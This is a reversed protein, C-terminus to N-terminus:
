GPVPKLLLRLPVHRHQLTSPKPEPTPASSSHSPCTHPPTWGGRWSEATWTFIQLAPTHLTCASTVIPFLPFTYLLLFSSAVLHASKLELNQKLKGRITRGLFELHLGPCVSQGKDWRCAQAGRVHDVPDDFLLRHQVVAALVHHWVVCVQGAGGGQVEGVAGDAEAVVQAVHSLWGAGVPNRGFHSGFQFIDQHVIGQGGHSHSVGQEGGHRRAGWLRTAPPAAHAHLVSVMGTLVQQCVKWLSSQNKILLHFLKGKTSNKQNKKKRGNHKM